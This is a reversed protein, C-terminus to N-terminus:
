FAPIAYSISHDYPRKRIWLGWIATLVACFWCGFKFGRERMEATFQSVTYHAKGAAPPLQFSLRLFLIIPKHFFYRAFVTVINLLLSFLGVIFVNAGEDLWLLINYIYNWLASILWM